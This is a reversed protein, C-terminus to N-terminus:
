LTSIIHREDCISIAFSINNESSYDCIELYNGNDLEWYSCSLRQASCDGFTDLYDNLQAKKNILQKVVDLSLKKTTTKYFLLEGRIERVEDFEEPISTNGINKVFGKKDNNPNGITEGLRWKETLEQNLAAAYNGDSISIITFGEQNKYFDDRLCLTYYISFYQKKDENNKTYFNVTDSCFIRNKGYNLNGTSTEVGKYDYFFVPKNISTFIEKITEDLNESSDLLMKSFTDKIAPLDHNEFGSIIKKVKQSSIKRNNSEYDPIYNDRRFDQFYGTCSTLVLPMLLITIFKRKM